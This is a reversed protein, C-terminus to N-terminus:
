LQVAGGGMVLLGGDGGLDGPTAVTAAGRSCRTAALLQQGAQRGCWGVDPWRADDDGV